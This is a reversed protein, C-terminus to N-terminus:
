VNRCNSCSSMVLLVWRGMYKFRSEGLVHSFPRHPIESAKTIAKLKLEIDSKFDHEEPLENENFPFRQQPRLIPIGDIGAHVSFVNHPSHPSLPLPVGVGGAAGLKLKQERIQSSSPLYEDITTGDLVVDRIFSPTKPTTPPGIVGMRRDFTVSPSTHDEAEVLNDEIRWTGKKHSSSSVDETDQKLTKVIGPIYSSSTTSITATVTEITGPITDNGMVIVASFFITSLHFWIMPPIRICSGM